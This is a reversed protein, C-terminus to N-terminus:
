CYTPYYTFLLYVTNKFFLFFIFIWGQGNASVQMYGDKYLMLLGNTGTSLFVM